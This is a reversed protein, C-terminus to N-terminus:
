LAMFLLKPDDIYRDFDPHEKLVALKEENTLIMTVLILFNDNSIKDLVFLHNFYPYNKRPNSFFKEQIFTCIDHVEDELDQDYIKNPWKFSEIQRDMEDYNYDRGM